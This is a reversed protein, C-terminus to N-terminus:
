WRTPSSSRTCDEHSTMSTRDASTIWTPMAFSGPSNTARAKPIRTAMIMRCIYAIQKPAYGLAPLETRVIRCSAEEHDLDAETFGADHFLAATKLLTLDEGNVGEKEAIDIATLYVDWTHARSHYPRDAPLERDLKALIIEKAADLDM